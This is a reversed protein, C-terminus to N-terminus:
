PCADLYHASFVGFDVLTVLGDCDYDCCPYNELYNLAFRAFDYLNVQCDGNCDPSCIYITPCPILVVGRCEAGFAIEGCGGFDNFVFQVVGNEDTSDVKVDEGPCFCFVDPASWAAACEVEAGPIPMAYMDIITVTVLPSGSADGGPCAMAVGPPMGPGEVEVTSLQPDPITPQTFAASALTLVACALAISIRM